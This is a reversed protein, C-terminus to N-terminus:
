VRHQFKGQGLRIFQGGIPEWPIGKREAAQVLIAAAPTPRRRRANTGLSHYAAEFGDEGAGSWWRLEEPLLEGLGILGVEAARRSVKPVRCSWVLFTREPSPGPVIEAFGIRDLRRMAYAM